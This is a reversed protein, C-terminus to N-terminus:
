ELKLIALLDSTNKTLWEKGKEGFSMIVQYVLPNEFRLQTLANAATIIAKVRNKIKPPAESM